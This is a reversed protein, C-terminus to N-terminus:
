YVNPRASKLNETSMVAKKVTLCEYSQRFCGVLKWRSRVMCNGETEEQMEGM